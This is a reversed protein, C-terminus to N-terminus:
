KVLREAPLKIEQYIEDSAGLIEFSPDFGIQQAVYLNMSIQPPREDVMKLERAKGGALMHAAMKGLFRGRETYNISTFGMLAGARVDETGQRAFVPVRHETLFDLYKKVDYKKWEFCVVSPMFFADIKQEVLSKLGAMCEEGTAGENVKYHVVEFGRQAAVEMADDVNAFTRGRPNDVYILGLRQFGVEDFFIQFMRKYRGPELQTTFNDVGSDQENLVFKARIPDAIAGGLIPTRHNNNKLLLDTADSGASFILALDTRAMLEKAAAERAEPTSGFKEPTYFADEPYEVKNGWGLEELGAKTAEWSARFISSFAGEFYAIKLKTEAVAPFAWAAACCLLLVRLYSKTVQM